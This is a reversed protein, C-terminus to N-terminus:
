QISNKSLNLTELNQIKELHKIVQIQNNALNLTSLTPYDQTIKSVLESTIEKIM